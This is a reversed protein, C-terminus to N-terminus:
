DNGCVGRIPTIAGAAGSLHSPLEGWSRDWLVPLKPEPKLRDALLHVAETLHEIATLLKLEAETM